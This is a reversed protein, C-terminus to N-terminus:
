LSDLRTRWGKLVREANEGESIMTDMENWCGELTEEKSQQVLSTLSKKTQSVIEEYLFENATNEIREWKEDPHFWDQLLSLLCDVSESAIRKSEEEVVDEISKNQTM